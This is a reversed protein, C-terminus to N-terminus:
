ASVMAQALAKLSRAANLHPTVSRQVKSLLFAGEMTTVLASAFEAANKASLGRAEAAQSIEKEWATFVRQLAESLLTKSGGVEGAIAAIPCSGHFGRERVIKATHKFVADVYQDLDVDRQGLGRFQETTAAGVRNIVEVGIQEKGGPFHFYLSGRPAGSTELLEAVGVGEYGRARFLEAAAGLLDDRASSTKAM